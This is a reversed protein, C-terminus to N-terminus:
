GNLLVKLRQQEQLEERSYRPKLDVRSKNERYFEKEWRELQRGKTLKERLTVLASLQGEGIGHFFSLFTWWHLYSLSRIEQGAVRNVGAVIADADQQWDLLKPGPATEEGGGRLFRALYEMAERRCSAPVPQRYFLELAVLWRHLQPLDPDELCHIIGLIERFDTRLSFVQEGLTVEVPLQWLGTM